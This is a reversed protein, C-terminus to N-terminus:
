PRGDVGDRVYIRYSVPPYAISDLHVTRTGTRKAAMRYNANLWADFKPWRKLKDYGTQLAPYDQRMVIFVWPPNEQIASWFRHRMQERVPIRGPTWFYFDALFGTSEVLRMRYLANICGSFTDMCQIHGSLAAGGLRDIDSQLMSYTQDDRWNYTSIKYLSVPAVILVWAALAAIGAVRLLGRRRTAESFDMAMMMLLFALLPYRHYPFGKRQGLYSAAGLALGFWLAWREWDVQKKSAFSDRDSRSQFRNAALVMLWLAVFPMMPSVSHVLLFSYPRDGLGAYYPWMGFLDGIFAAVARERWLFVFVAALPVTIGLSGWLVAPLWRRGRLALAAFLLVLVLPALTPKITMAIGACLGFALMWRTQDRRIAHFAFAYGALMLVAMILDRQATQPIGDRGHLLAFITAACAAAFRDRPWAIWLMSLGAVLLLSFDFLRLGLAGGGFMHMAVWDVLYAGPMQTDIIQRYPSFGHELLLVVYHVLTADGILPWHITLVGYALVCALLIFTAATRVIRAASVGPETFVRVHYCAGAASRRPKCAASRASHKMPIGIAAAFHREQERDEAPYTVGAGWGVAIEVKRHLCKRFWCILRM